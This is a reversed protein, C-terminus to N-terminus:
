PKAVDRVGRIELRKTAPNTTLVQLTRKDGPHPWAASAFEQWAGATKFFGKMAASQSAGAPPNPIARIEAPKFEFDSQELRIRVSEASLNAVLISGAPFATPNDEVVVIRCAPQGPTEPIFLLIASRVSAPIECAGIRAAADKASAPDPKATFVLKGDKPTLTDFEHNLFSKVRVKGATTAGSAAHAHLEAPTAGTQISLARIRCEPRAAVAAPALGFWAGTLVVTLIRANM